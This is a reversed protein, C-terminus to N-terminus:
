AARLTTATKAKAWAKPTVDKIQWYTMQPLRTLVDRLYTYPEVGRRRCNEIITYLVASADCREGLPTFIALRGHCRCLPVLRNANQANVDARHRDDRGAGPVGVYAAGSLAM